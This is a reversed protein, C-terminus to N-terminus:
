SFLVGRPGKPRHRPDSPTGLFTPTEKHALCGQLRPPAIHDFRVGCLDQLPAKSMLFVVRRPGQLLVKGLTRRHDWALPASKKHALYGQLCTREWPM